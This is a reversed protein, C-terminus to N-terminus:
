DSEKEDVMNLDSSEKMNSLFYDMSNFRMQEEDLVDIESLNIYPRWGGFVM